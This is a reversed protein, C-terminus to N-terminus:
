QSYSDLTLNSGSEKVGEENFLVWKDVHVGIAKGM